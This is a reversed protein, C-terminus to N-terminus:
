AIGLCFSPKSPIVTGAYSGIKKVQLKLMVPLHNSMYYLSQIVSNPASTNKPKDTLGKNVHLGDQGIVIYSSDIYHVKATGKKTVENFFIHDYIQDLGGSSGCDDLQKARTSITLWKAYLAPSNNWDGLQNTPDYFRWNTDTPNILNQICSESSSRSNFDGLFLYHQKSNGLLALSDMTHQIEAGRQAGTSDGSILHCQIINIYITDGLANAISDNYYLQHLNIDSISTDGAYLTQTGVYVFKSKKYYLLNAKFFGSHNTYNAAQYCGLCISDLVNSIISDKTFTPSAVMKVLGLIDPDIYDLVTRLYGHKLDTRLGTCFSDSRLGYNLTNYHMVKINHNELQQAGANAALCLLLIILSRFAYQTRFM